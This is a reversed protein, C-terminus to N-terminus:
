LVVMVNENYKKNKSNQSPNNESNGGSQKWKEKVFNQYCSLECFM